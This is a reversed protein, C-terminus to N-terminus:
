NNSIKKKNCHLWFLHANQARDVIHRRAVDDLQDALRGARPRRGLQAPPAALRAHVLDAFRDGVVAEDGGAEEGEHRGNVVVALEDGAGGGIGLKGLVFHVVAPLHVNFTLLGSILFM